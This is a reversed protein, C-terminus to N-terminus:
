EPAYHTPKDPMIFSPSLSDIVFRVITVSTEHIPGLVFGDQGAQQVPCITPQNIAMPLPKIAHIPPQRFMSLGQRRPPFILHFFAPRNSFVLGARSFFIKFFPFRGM